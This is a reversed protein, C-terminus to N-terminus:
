NENLNVVLMVKKSIVILNDIQWMLLHSINQWIKQKYVKLFFFFDVHNM